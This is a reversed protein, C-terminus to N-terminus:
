DETDVPRPRPMPTAPNGPSRREILPVHDIGKRIPETIPQQPQRPDPPRPNDQPHKEANFVRMEKMEQQKVMPTWLVLNTSEHYQAAYNGREGKMQAFNYEARLEDADSDPMQDSLPKKMNIIFDNLHTIRIIQVQEDLRKYDDSKQSDAPSIAAM